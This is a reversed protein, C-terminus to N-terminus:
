VIIPINTYKEVKVIKVKIKKCIIIFDINSSPTKKLTILTIIM